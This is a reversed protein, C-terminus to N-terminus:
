HAHVKDISFEANKGHCVTCSEGLSTTNALAHSFAEDTTHCGTCAATVAGVPSAPARPNNVTSVYGPLLLQESGNVHCKQCDRRDGPFIVDSFDNKPGSGGYIAFERTLNEGTHISHIMVNFTIAQAPGAAAPRGAGDTQSVNHCQVCREVQNRNRGHAELQLHCANCKETKLVTRRSLVASGNVSFYSQKNMGADRVVTEKKTGPLLTINKYGEISISFTGTATAAIHNQFTWEFRGDTSGTTKRADESVFSSYDTTPGALVPSLRDMTSPLIPAGEQNKITFTVSPRKGAVGDAVNLIEFTTGRLNRSFRSDLHAGRISADLDLEGQSVHFSSCQNDSVQPLNVLDDGLNRDRAVRSVATENAM